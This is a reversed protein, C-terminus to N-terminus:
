ALTSVGKNEEADANGRGGIMLIGILCFSVCMLLIGFNNGTVKRSM